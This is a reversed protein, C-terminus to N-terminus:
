QTIIDVEELESSEISVFLKIPLAIISEYGYRIWGMDAHIALPVIEEPLRQLRVAGDSIELFGEFDGKEHAIPFPVVATGSEPLPTRFVEEGAITVVVDKQGVPENYLSRLFLSPTFSLLIFFAIIAIDAPKVLRM